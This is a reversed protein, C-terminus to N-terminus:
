KEPIIGFHLFLKEAIKYWMPAATESAWPSSKPERLTVLMIFKPDYHPAFGIFSAVTKEEDYHGAIPIQATGTKGAVGFGQKYTWKSEGYKAAEVMMLKVEQSAKESIIRIGQDRNNSMYAKDGIVFEKVVVPKVFLGDNAIVNIASLLQIPTVAIGQGFSSTVLDVESWNKLSRLAANTEGQLDIETKRGIGFKDLYEVNKEIGLKKAVYSMGVNDSHVIVDTMTSNPYYQDNWTHIQYGGVTLPGSCADCRTDPGVVGLDLAAAMTVVKFVSGPEFSASIVPNLFLENSYEWYTEPIYTPYSSMALIGGNKPNMVVVSGSLAGYKEVGKRLEAEVILQIGRDIYTNLDTGSYSLSKKSIGFLIPSGRVDTEAKHIGSSSTLTENYYGELGFYGINRDDQDKGLFGILHAAMSAEPYKRVEDKDFGIGSLGKEDIRKKVETTLRKKIPVWSKDSESILSYIRLGEEKIMKRDGAEEALLEALVSSTEKPDDIRKPEAFLNWSDAQGVLISGNASFIRGRGASEVVNREYQPRVMASLEESRIIQWYFFRFTLLIFGIYTFIYIFIIRYHM